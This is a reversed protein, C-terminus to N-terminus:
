VNSGGFSTGNLQIADAADYVERDREQQQDGDGGGGGGGGAYVPNDYAMGVSAHPLTAGSGSSVVSGARRRENTFIRYNEKAQRVRDM